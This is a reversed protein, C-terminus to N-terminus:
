QPQWLVNFKEQLKEGAKLDICPVNKKWVCHDHRSVLGFFLQSLLLNFLDSKKDGVRKNLNNSSSESSGTGSCVEM